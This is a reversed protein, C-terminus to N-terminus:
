LLRWWFGTQRKSDRWCVGTTPGASVQCGWNDPLYVGRTVAIRKAIRRAGKCSVRGRTWVGLRLRPENSRFQIAAPRCRAAQAAAPGALTVLAAVAAALLLTRRMAVESTPQSVASM